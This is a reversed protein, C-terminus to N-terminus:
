LLKFENTLINVEPVKGEQVNSEYFGFGVVTQNKNWKQVLSLSGDEYWWTVIGQIDRNLTPIECHKNGNPHYKVNWYVIDVTM